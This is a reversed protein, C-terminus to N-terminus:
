PVRHAVHLVAGWHRRVWDFQKVMVDDFLGTRQIEDRSDPLRGPRSWTADTPRSEGIQDYVNQIEVFFSDGDEPVVHTASWFALHGDPRTLEWARRYGLAPDIWHWATAAFVLNFRRRARPEWTEFNAEVIKVEPFGALQRRGAAALAAGLEVCVIPFGRRSLPQTGKRHRV